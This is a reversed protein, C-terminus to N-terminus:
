QNEEIEYTANLEPYNIGFENSLVRANIYSESTVRSPKFTKTYALNGETDKVEQYWGAGKWFIKIKM